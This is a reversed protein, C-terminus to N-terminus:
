ADGAVATRGTFLTRTKTQLFLISILTVSHDRLYVTRKYDQEETTRIQTNDPFFFHNGYFISM